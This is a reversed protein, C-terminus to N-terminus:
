GIRKREDFFPINRGEISNRRFFFIFLCHNIKKRDNALSEVHYNIINKKIMNFQKVEQEQFIRVSRGIAFYIAFTASVYACARYSLETGIMLCDEKKKTVLEAM